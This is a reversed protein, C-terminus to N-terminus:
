ARIGHMLARFDEPFEAKAAEWQAKFHVTSLLTWLVSLCRDWVHEPIAGSSHGRHIEYLQHLLEFSRSEHKSVPPAAPVLDKHGFALERWLELKEIVAVAGSLSSVKSM